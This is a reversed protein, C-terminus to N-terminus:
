YTLENEVYDADIELPLEYIEGEYLYLYRAYTETVKKM